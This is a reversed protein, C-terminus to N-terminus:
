KHSASSGERSVRRVVRRRRKVGHWETQRNCKRHEADAYKTKSGDVHGVDWPQGPLIARRCRACLVQGSEVFPSWRKREQQHRYGYGRATTSTRKTSM